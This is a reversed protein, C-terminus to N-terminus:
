EKANDIGLNFENTPTIYGLNFENTPIM